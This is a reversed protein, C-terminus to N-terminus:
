DWRFLFFFTTLVIKVAYLQGFLHPSILTLEPVALLTFPVQHITVQCRTVSFINQIEPVSLPLLTFSLQTPPQKTKSLPLM